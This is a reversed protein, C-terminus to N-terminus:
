VGGGGGLMILTHVQRKTQLTPLIVEYKQKLVDNEHMEVNM